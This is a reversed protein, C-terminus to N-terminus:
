RCLSSTNWGAAFRVAREAHPIACARAFITKWSACTPNVQSLATSFFVARDVGRALNQVLGQSDVARTAFFHPNTKVWFRTCQRNVRGDLHFTAEDSVVLFQLHGPDAAIRRLESPCFSLRRVKDDEMLRQCVQLKYLRLGKAKLARSVTSVSKGFMLGAPRCSLLPNAEFAEVSRRSGKEKRVKQQLVRNVEFASRWRLVSPYSPALKNFRKKFLTGVQHYSKTTIICCM